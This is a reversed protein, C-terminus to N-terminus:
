DYGCALNYRASTKQSIKFINTHIERLDLGVEFYELWRDRESAGSVWGM